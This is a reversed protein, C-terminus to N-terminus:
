GAYSRRLGVRRLRVLRLDRQHAVLARLVEEWDEPRLSLLHTMRDSHFSYLM